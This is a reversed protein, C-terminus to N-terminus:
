MVHECHLQGGPSPIENSRIDEKKVEFKVISKKKIMVSVTFFVKKGRRNKFYILEDNSLLQNLQQTYRLKNRLCCLDTWYYNMIIAPIYFKSLSILQYLNYFFFCKEMYDFINVSFAITTYHYYNSTTHNIITLKM